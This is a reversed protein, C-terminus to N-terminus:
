RQNHFPNTRRLWVSTARRLAAAGRDTTWQPQGTRPKGNTRVFLGTPTPSEVNTTFDPKDQAAMRLHSQLSGSGQPQNDM